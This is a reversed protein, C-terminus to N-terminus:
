HLGGHSGELWFCFRKGDDQAVQQLPGYFTSVIAYLVLFYYRFLRLSKDAVCAAEKIRSAGRM